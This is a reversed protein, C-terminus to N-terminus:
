VGVFIQSGRLTCNPREKVVVRGPVQVLAGQGVVM